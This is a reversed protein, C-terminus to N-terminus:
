TAIFCLGEVFSITGDSEVGVFARARVRISGYIPSDVVTGAFVRMYGSTVHRFFELRSNSVELHAYCFIIRANRFTEFPKVLLEQIVIVNRHQLNQIM